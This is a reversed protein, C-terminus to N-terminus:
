INSSPITTIPQPNGANGNGTTPTTVPNFTNSPLSGPADVVNVTRTVPNAPFGASNRVSYAVTYTGAVSTNIGATVQIRSSIDGDKSDTATAGPDVFATGTQITMPNDGLLTITPQTTPPQTLASPMTRDINNQFATNEQTSEPSTAAM